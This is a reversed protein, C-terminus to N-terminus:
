GFVKPFFVSCFSSFAIPYINFGDGTNKSQFCTIFAVDLQRAVPGFERARFLPWTCVGHREVDRHRSADQNALPPEVATMPMAVTEHHM